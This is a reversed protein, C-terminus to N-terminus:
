KRMMNKVSQIGFSAAFVVGVATKYYDPMTDLAAFGRMVIDEHGTFALILPISVLITLWEDKWSNASAEAMTQNWELEGTAVKQAIVAKAKAIELKAQLEMQAKEARGQLWTKAVNAIPQLFGQLM